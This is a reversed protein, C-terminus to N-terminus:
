LFATSLSCVFNCLTWSLLHKDRSAPSVYTCDPHLPTVISYRCRWLPTGVGDASKSGDTFISISHSHSSFHALFLRKLVTPPPLLRLWAPWPEVFSLLSGGHPCLCHCLSFCQCCLSLSGQSRSLWVSLPLHHFPVPPGVPPTITLTHCLRSHPHQLFWAFYCLCYHDHHDQLSPIGTEVYLSQTPISHFASSSLRLGTHHLVYFRRSFSHLAVIFWTCSM